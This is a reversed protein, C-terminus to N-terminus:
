QPAVPVNNPHVKMGVAQESHIIELIEPVTTAVRWLPREPAVALFNEQAARDLMAILPDYFGDLNFLVIPSDIIGLKKWSLAEMLEEFTGAGGPLAVVGDSEQLMQFKREHLSTVLRLEQLNRHCWELQEMFRPMIGLVQGGAELTGDALAGMTGYSGGGYVLTHGSKAILRGLERAAVNYKDAVASAGCYVCIRRPPPPVPSAADTM